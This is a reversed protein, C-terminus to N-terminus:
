SDANVTIHLHIAFFKLRSLFLCVFLSPPSPSLSVSPFDNNAAFSLKCELMYVCVSLSIYLGVSSCLCVSSCLSVCVFSFKSLGESLCVSRYVSRDVSLCVCLFM